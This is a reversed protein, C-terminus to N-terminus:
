TVEMLQIVMLCETNWGWGNFYMCHTAWADSADDESRGCQKQTTGVFSSAMLCEAIPREVMPVWLSSSACYPFHQTVWPFAVPAMSKWKSTLKNTNKRTKFFKIASPCNTLEYTSAKFTLVRPICKRKHKWKANQTLSHPRTQWQRMFGWRNLQLGQSFTLKLPVKLTVWCGSFFCTSLKSIGRRWVAFLFHM